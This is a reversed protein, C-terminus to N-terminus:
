HSIYRNRFKCTYVTSENQVVIVDNDSSLLHGFDDSSGFNINFRKPWTEKGFSKLTAIDTIQYAINTCSRCSTTTSSSRTTIRTISSCYVLLLFLLFFFRIRTRTRVIIHSKTQKILKLHLCLVLYHCSCVIM